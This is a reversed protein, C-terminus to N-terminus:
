YKMGLRQVLCLVSGFTPGELVSWTLSDGDKDSANLELPTWSIPNLDESIVIESIVGPIIEPPDNVAIVEISFSETHILGESEVTVSIDVTGNQDAGLSFILEEGNLSLSLLENNSSTASYNFLATESDVDGFYSNLFLSSINSDELVQKGIQDVLSNSVHPADDVPNVFVELYSSVVQGSSNVDIQVVTNGNQNLLPRISMNDEDFTIELLNPNMSTASFNIETHNNDLDSFYEFLSLSAGIEDEAMHIPPFQKILFPADDVAEIKVTFEFQDIFESDSVEFLLKEEGSYDSNPVYNFYVNNGERSGVFSFSGFKPQDVIRWTLLDGEKDTANLEIPVWGIPYLDESISVESLVGSNVIPADNLPIVEVSFSETHSIGDSEITVSVTVIGSQDAGLAFHLENGIVSVSLIDENSSVASYNFSSSESDIDAFYHDLSLSSLNSDENVTYNTLYNALFPPDDVPLVNVQFSDHLVREGSNIVLQISCNGSLDAQPYLWLKSGSIQPNVLSPNSSVATFNLTQPNGSKDEFFDNLEISVNQDENLLVPGVSASKKIDHPVINIKLESVLNSAQATSDVVRITIVRSSNATGYPPTGGIVVSGIQNDIQVLKLWDDNANIGDIVLFRSSMDADSSGISENFDEGEKVDIESDFMEVVPSDYTPVVFVKVDLSANREGDSVSISFSDEGSFNPPPTYSFVSPVTGNGDVQATGGSLPSSLLSWFLQEPPSEYDSASFSIIQSFDNLTDEYAFIKTETLSNGWQTTITPKYNDITVSLSFSQLAFSGNSDSVKVVVSYEGIDQSGPLGRLLGSGNGDQTFILWDPRFSILELSINQAVWDADYTKIEYEYFSEDNGNLLPTSTFIPPDNVGEINVLVEIQDIKPMSSQPIAEDTVMVYFSDTGSFNSDPFYILGSGDSDISVSGHNPQGSISWLLNSNETEQDNAILSPSVFTNNLDETMSVSISSDGNNIVPAHNLVLVELNLTNTSSLLSSDTVTLNISYNGEDSELPQGNLNLVGSEIDSQDLSIWNPHGSISAIVGGLGDHDFVSVNLDLGENEIIQLSSPFNVFIPLDDTPNVTVSVAITDSNIGDSVTLDFTDNGSFNSDPTYKLNTLVENSYEITLYGNQHQSSSYLLRQNDTDQVSIFDKINIFSDENVSLSVSAGQDFEPPTNTAKVEIAFSQITSLSSSDMVQISVTQNGEHEPLPTGILYGTTLTTNYFNLWGPLQVASGTLASISDSDLYSFDYRWEHGVIATKFQPFTDFAPPDDIPNITLNYTISDSANIDNQDLVKLTFSDLGSYNADPIYNVIPSASTGNVEVSGHTANTEIIWTLNDLATDQDTVTINPPVWGNPAGDEDIIRDNSELSSIVPPYNNPIVSLNFLYQDSLGNQDTVTVFFSSSGGSPYDAWTPTQSVTFNNDYHLWNPLNVFSLTHSDNLDPDSFTFNHEFFVGEEAVLNSNVNQFEPPDNVPSILLNFELEVSKNGEGGTDEFLVVSFSDTGSFNGDPRYFISQNFDAKSFNVDLEGHSPLVLPQLDLTHNDDDIYALVPLASYWDNENFDESLNLDLSLVNSNGDVLIQPPNNRELTRLTFNRTVAANINDTLALTINYDTFRLVDPPVPSNSNGTGASPVGTINLGDISLGLPLSGSVLSLQLTDNEDDFVSISQNFDDGEMCSALNTTLFIPADQQSLVTVNFDLFDYSNGKFLNLTFSHTGSYNGDPTFEFLGTSSNLDYNAGSGSSKILTWDLNSDYPHSGNFDYYFTDSDELISFSTLSNRNIIPALAPLTNDQWADNYFAFVGGGVEAFTSEGPIGILSYGDNLAISLHSQDSSNADSLSLTSILSIQSGNQELRYIYAAGDNMQPSSVALLDGRLVLDSSFFQNAMIEPPHIQGIENWSGGNEQFVYVVGENTTNSDRQRAGVFALNENIAVSYGFEDGTSLGSPSFKHTQFWGSANKEFIYAAGSDTGNADAKPAGVIMKLNSLDISYGFEDNSQNDDARLISNYVWHSGNFDFVLVQGSGNNNVQLSSVVLNQSSVSIDWGFSDGVVSFNNLVQMPSYSGNDERFFSEVHGTFASVDPAGIILFRDHTSLSYGFQGIQNTNASTLEEFFIFSGNSDQNFIQVAGDDFGAEGPSGIISQNWDNIQISYGFKSSAINNPPFFLNSEHPLINIQGTLANSEPNFYYLTRTTNSDPTFFLYEDAGSAENNWIGSSYSSQNNEGISFKDGNFSKNEFIYYNNEFLNITPFPDNIFGNGTVLYHSGNWEFSYYDSIEGNQSNSFGFNPSYFIACFCITWCKLLIFVFKGLLDFIREPSLM